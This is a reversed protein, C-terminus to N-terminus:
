KKPENWPLVGKLAEWYKDDWYKNYGYILGGIIVISGVAVIILFIDVGALFGIALTSAFAIVVCGVIAGLIVAAWIKYPNMGLMKGVITGGVAGSGQFPVMVFLVIGGFALRDIWPKTVLIESGKAELRRIFTGILPIKKALDFNWVLFLGVMIDIYAISFAVLWPDLGQSIALPIVSEKGLPPFFYAIMWGGLKQFTDWDLFYFLVGIGAFSLFFPTFFKMLAMIIAPGGMAYTIFVLGCLIMLYFWAVMEISLKIDDTEFVEYSYEIQAAGSGQNDPNDITNSRAKLEIDGFVSTGETFFRTHDEDLIIGVDDLRMYTIDFHEWGTERVMFVKDFDSGPFLCDSFTTGGLLLIELDTDSFVVGSFTCDHLHLGKFLSDNYHGGSFEVAEMEGHHFELIDATVNELMGQRAIFNTFRTRRFTCDSFVVETLECDEVRSDIFSCNIFGVDELLTRRFVFNIFHVNSFEVDRLGSDKLEGDYLLLDSYVVGEVLVDEVSINDYVTLDNIMKPGASEDELLDDPSLDADHDVGTDIKGYYDIEDIRGHIRVEDGEEMDTYINNSYNEGIEGPSMAYWTWFSALILGALVIIAIGGWLFRKDSHDLAKRVFKKIKPMLPPPLEDRHDDSLIKKLDDETSQLTAIAGKLGERLEEVDKHGKFGVTIDVEDDGVGAGAIRGHADLKIEFSEVKKGEVIRDKPDGDDDSEEEENSKEETVSEEVDDSKEEAVSEEVDDSKEEAVSEEVDVSKEEAVSEEVDDSKEEDSNKADNIAM